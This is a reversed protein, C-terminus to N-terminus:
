RDFIIVKGTQSSVGFNGSHVDRTNRDYIYEDGVSKALDYMAILFSKLFDAEKGSTLVSPIADLDFWAEGKEAHISQTGAWGFKQVYDSNSELGRGQIWTIIYDAYEEAGGDFDSFPRVHHPELKQNNAIRTRSRTAADQMGNFLDADFFDEIDKKTQGEFTEELWAEFPIVEGVEAYGIYKVPDTMELEADPVYTPITGYEYVALDHSKASGGYQSNLLKAYVKLEEQLGYVGSKFIKVIHKNSFLMAVGYGGDGIVKVFKHDKFINSPSGQGETMGQTAQELSECKLKGAAGSYFPPRGSNVLKKLANCNHLITDKPKNAMRQKRAKEYDDADGQQHLEKETSAKWQKFKEWDAETSPPDEKWKRAMAARQPEKEKDDLTDLIDDIFAERIAWQGPQEMEPQLRYDVTIEEGPMIDRNAVLTRTYKESEVPASPVSHCTPKESHNHWRGLPPINWNQGGNRVATIGLKTDKPIRQGAFIGKGHIKSPRIVLIVNADPVRSETLFKRWNEFLLNM